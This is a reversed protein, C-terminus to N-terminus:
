TAIKSNESFWEMCYNAEYIDGRKIHNLLKQIKDQYQEKNLREKLQIKTSNLFNISSNISNIEIWDDQIEKGDLYLAEISSNSILWIKKPQFFFINPIDFNNINNSKLEEIENKLNYSFYGFIWDKTQNIYNDLKDLSKEKTFPLKSHVDVCLITEYDELKLNM